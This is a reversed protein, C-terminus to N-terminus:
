DRHAVAGYQRFLDDGARAAAASVDALGVFGHLLGPHPVYTVDAGAERML